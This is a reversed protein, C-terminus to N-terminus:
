ARLAGVVAGSRRERESIGRYRTIERRRPACNRGAGLHRKQGVERADAPKGKFTFSSSRAAVRLHPVKMLAGALEDTMGDSFYEDEANGSQNVFPLVAISQAQDLGAVPAAARRQWLFGALALLVAIGAPAVWMFWRRGETRSRADPHELIRRVEGIDALRREVDRELCRALLSRVAAPVKTPLANLDPDHTLVAAIKDSATEGAFLSRGTLMEFLVVGFSWIDSRQDVPKGRAQEPSMYAPTGMVTGM